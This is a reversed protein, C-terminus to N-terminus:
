LRIGGRMAPGTHLNNKPHMGSYRSFSRSSSRRNLGHRRAM